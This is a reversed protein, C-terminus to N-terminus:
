VKSLGQIGSAAVSAEWDSGRISKITLTKVTPSTICHVTVPHPLYFCLAFLRNDAPSPTTPLPM